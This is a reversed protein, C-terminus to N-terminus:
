NSFEQLCIVETVENVIVGVEQVETDIIVARRDSGKSNVLGFKIALDIVPIV